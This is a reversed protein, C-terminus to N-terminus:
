FKLKCYFSSNSKSFGWSFCDSSSSYSKTNDKKKKNKDKWHVGKEKLVIAYILEDNKYVHDYAFIRGSATSENYTWNREERFDLDFSINNLIDIPTNLVRRKKLM